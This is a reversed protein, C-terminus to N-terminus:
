REYREDRLHISPMKSTQPPKPPDLVGAPAHEVCLISYGHPSDPDAELLGEGKNVHRRCVKCYGDWQNTKAM